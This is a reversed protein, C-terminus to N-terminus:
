VLEENEEAYEQLIKLQSYIISLPMRVVTSDLYDTLPWEVERELITQVDDIAEIVEKM